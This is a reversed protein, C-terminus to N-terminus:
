STGEQDDGTDGSCTEQDNGGDEIVEDTGGEEPELIEIYGQQTMQYCEKKTPRWIDVTKGQRIRKGGTDCIQFEGILEMNANYIRCTKGIDERRYAVAGEHVEEGNAMVGSLCYGTIKVPIVQPQPVQLPSVLLAVSLILAVCRM